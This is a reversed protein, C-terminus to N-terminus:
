YGPPGPPVPGSPPYAGDKDHQEDGVLPPCFVSIINLETAARVRHRDKPGVNYITDPALKWSQGTTLDTVEGTGSVVYNAEWHNKYWLTSEAGAKVRVDSFSFGVEDAKTVLRLYRSNGSVSIVEKGAARMETAHRVFMRKDTKPGPGSPEYAGDKDHRENGVLPPCFISVHHEDEVAVLRHRDNPGVVYLSGAELNWKQGTTLDELTSRGSIFYNAEWHNKYWLVGDSGKAARVDSYSFGLGDAATLLRASKTSGGVLTLVKGQAALEDVTRVFM